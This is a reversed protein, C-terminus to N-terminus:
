HFQDSAPVWSGPAAAAPVHLPKVPLPNPTLPEAPPCNPPMPGGSVRAAACEASNDLVVPAAPAPTTAAVAVTKPVSANTTPLNLRDYIKQPLPAAPPDPNHCGFLASPLLPTVTCEIHVGKPLHFTHKVTTKEVAHRLATDISSEGEPTWYKDFVTPRYTPLNTDHSMIQMDGRPKLQIYTGNPTGLAAGNGASAASGTGIASSTSPQKGTDTANKTTSIVGHPQGPNATENGQLTADPATSISEAAQNESSSTSTSASTPVAAASGEAPTSPALKAQNQTIAPAVAPLLSLQPQLSVEPVSFKPAAVAPPSTSPKSVAPFAAAPAVPTLQPLKESRIVPAVLHSATRAVDPTVLPTAPMQLNVAPASKAPLPVTQSSPSPPAAATPNDRTAVVSPMPVAPLAPKEVSMQPPTVTLASQAPQTPTALSPLPPMPQTGEPQAKRVPQPQFAPPIPQPMQVAQFSPPPPALGAPISQEIPPASPRPLTIAPLPAAVTRQFVASSKAMATVSAQRSAASPAHAPAVAVPAATSTEHTARTAHTANGRHTPGREKPPVGRVPPPPPPQKNDILRVLLTNGKPEPPPPPLEYPSGLMSGFLFALHVLLAGAVAVMKLLRERPKERTRRRYVLAWTTADRPSKILVIPRPSHHQDPPLPQMRM